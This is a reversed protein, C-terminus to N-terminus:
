TFRGFGLVFHIFQGYNRSFFSSKRVFLSLKKYKGAWRVKDLGLFFVFKRISFLKEYNYCPMEKKMKYKKEISLWSKNKM